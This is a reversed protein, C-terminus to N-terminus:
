AKSFSLAFPLDANIKVRSPQVEINGALDFGKASFSFQGNDGEWKEAVNSIIQKQEEKLNTLLGKIRELAEEKPLEHPIDLNLTSM